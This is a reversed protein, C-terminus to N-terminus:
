TTQLAKEKQQNLLNSNTAFREFENKTKEYLSTFFQGARGLISNHHNHETLLSEHHNAHAIDVSQSKKKATIQHHRLVNGITEKGSPYTSIAKYRPLSTAASVSLQSRQAM